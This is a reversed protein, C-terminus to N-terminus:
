RAGPGSPCLLSGRRGAVAAEASGDPAREPGCPTMEDGVAATDAMRRVVKYQRKIELMRQDAVRLLADFDDGDDAVVAWGISADIRFTGQRLAMPQALAARIKEMAVGVHEVTGVDSLLVCFEDGGYRAVVDTARVAKRLRRAASMLVEDGVDHGYLDNIIKFDDLDVFLLAHIGAAGAQKRVQKMLRRFCRVLFDRTHVRTLRDIDLRREMQEFAQIIQGIETRALEGKLPALASERRRETRDAGRVAAAESSTVYGLMAQLNMGSQMIARALMGLEDLRGLWDPRPLGASRGSAVIRAQALLRSLPRVVRFELLVAGALLGALLPAPAGFWAPLAVMGLAAFAAARVSLRGPLSLWGQWGTRVLVGREFALGPTAGERMRQYLREAAEAEGPEPESRVAVFGAQGGKAGVPSVLARVWFASGDKRRCKVLGSWIHGGRLTAAMDDLVGPPMDPHWLLWYAKGLLEDLDWGTMEVCSQHGAYVINGEGDVVFMTVMGATEHPPTAPPDDM